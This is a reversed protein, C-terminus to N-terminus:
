AFDMYGGDLRFRFKTSDSLRVKKNTDTLSVRNVVAQSTMPNTGEFVSQRLGSQVRRAVHDLTEIEDPVSAGAVGAEELVKAARKLDHAHFASSAERLRSEQDTLAKLTRTLDEVEEREDVGCLKALDAYYSSRRALADKSTIESQQATSAEELSDVDVSSFYQQPPGRQQGLFRFQSGRAAASYCRSGPLLTSPFRTTFSCVIRRGLAM